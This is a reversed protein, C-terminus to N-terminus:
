ERVLRRLQKENGFRDKGLSGDSKNYDRYIQFGKGSDSKEIVIGDTNESVEEEVKGVTGKMGTSPFHAKGEPETEMKELVRRAAAIEEKTAM